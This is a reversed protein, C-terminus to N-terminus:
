SLTSLVRNERNKLIHLTMDDCCCSQCFPLWVVTDIVTDCTGEANSQTKM